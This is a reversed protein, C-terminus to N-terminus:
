LDLLLENIISLENERLNLQNHYDKEYKIQKIKIAYSEIKENLMNKLWFCYGLLTSILVIIMPILWLINVNIASLVTVIIESIFVAIFAILSLIKLFTICKKSFSDASSTAENKIEKMISTKKEKAKKRKDDKDQKLKEVEISLNNAKKSIGNTIKELATDVESKVVDENIKSEDGQSFVMLNKTITHDMRLTMETEQDVTGNMTLAHLIDVYCRIIEPTPSLAMQANEYLRLKPIEPDHFGYKIWMETSLDFVSYAPPICDEFELFERVTNCLNTNSTIWIYECREITKSVNGKRERCISSICDVDNQAPSDKYGRIKKLLSNKLGEEDIFEKSHKQRENENGYYPVIEKKTFGLNSLKKDIDSIYIKIASTPTNHEDFFELTQSSIKGRNNCYATLIDVVEDRNREYYCLEAGNDSLLKMICKINKTQSNTKYGLAYLLLTTDFYVVLDKLPLTKYQTKDSHVYVASSLLAGCSIDTLDSYYRNRKDDLINLIFQALIFKDRGSQNTIENLNEPDVLIDYSQNELLSSFLSIAKEESIMKGTRQKYDNIFAVILNNTSEHKEAFSQEFSKRKDNLDCILVFKNGKEKKLVNGYKKKTLRSLINTIVSEPISGFAFDRDLKEIILSINIFGGIKCECSIIYEVFPILLDFTDKNSNEWIAALMAASTLSDRNNMKLKVEFYM